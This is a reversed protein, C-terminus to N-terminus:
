IWIWGWFDGIEVSKKKLGNLPKTKNWKYSLCYRTIIRNSCVRSSNWHKIMGMNTGFGIELDNRSGASNGGSYKSSNM